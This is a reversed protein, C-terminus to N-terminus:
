ETLESELKISTIYATGESHLHACRHNALAYVGTQRSERKENKISLYCERM